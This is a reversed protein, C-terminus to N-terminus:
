DDDGWWMPDPELEDSGGDGLIARARELYLEDDLTVPRGAQEMIILGTWFGGTPFWLVRDRLAQLLVEAALSRVGEEDLLM